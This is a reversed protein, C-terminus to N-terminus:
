TNLLLYDCCIKINVGNSIFWGCFSQQQQRKGFRSWREIRKCQFICAISHQVRRLVVNRWKLVRFFAKFNLDYIELLQFSHLFKNIFSFLQFVISAFMRRKPIAIYKKTCFCYNEDSSDLQILQNKIQISYFFRVRYMACFLLHFQCFSSSIVHM